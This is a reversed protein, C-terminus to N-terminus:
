LAEVTVEIGSLAANGSPVDLASPDTIDNISVGAHEAAVRLRAGPRDHGWGHPLSVVGEMVSDSTEVVADISGVRSSVRANAGNRLGLRSADTPHVLLTCRPKGAVLKPVNHMWSNNSRVHRRGILRLLREVVGPPHTADLRALDAVLAVPAADIRPHDKPMRRLLCPRLPGLDIGHPHKELERLSLGRRWPRPGRPGLRIGIDVLRDPGLARLALLRALRAASSGRLRELRIALEALIWWEPRTDGDPPLAARSFRATNRVALLHLAADYHSRELAVTPPLIVHAHRTTENIWPDISVVSDLSALAVDLRRGNPTSLVPNGALTVLGRIRAEGADLIEEALAVVPLEGGFEPLKRVTSTFRGHSGRGIGIGAPLSLVDLAPETFMAGGERDLNGTVLNLAVILWQCVSGFSQTSCGIRGYVVASGATALADALRRITAADIGTAAAAREATYPEVARRLADLRDVHGELHRLRPRHEALVHRLTAALFLADTGPRIFHHEDAVAATETRRPDIVVLRGGRARLERLRREIGPATMLSGNSALPNAGLVVFLNTRDVDPVPFLAQHGLMRFSAVMHPIQDVSSASYRNHTRLTRSLVLGFLSAGHSHVTPNGIYLGLAHRGGAQQAAHMGRAAEDLADDWSIREFGSATRRVPHRLRDPDSRIDALAPAKPCIHGRSFPDDSDGRISVVRDTDIEVTVGCMAECLNCARHHRVAM